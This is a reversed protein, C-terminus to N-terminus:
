MPGTDRRRRQRTSQVIWAIPLVAFAITWGALGRMRWPSAEQEATSIGAHFGLLLALCSAALLTGILLLSWHLREKAILADLGCGVLWWFPLAFFPLVLADWTEPLLAAPHWIAPWSTPLSILIEFITGPVNIGQIIHAKSVTVLRIALPVIQNRPLSMELEQTHVHIQTAGKSAEYLHASTLTIPVIVLLVLLSLDIVPLIHSLPIREERM